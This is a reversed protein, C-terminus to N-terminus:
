RSLLTEIGQAAGETEVRMWLLNATSGTYLDNDGDTNPDTVTFPDADADYLALYVLRRNSAGSADSYSSATTKNTAIKAAALLTGFPEVDIEEMKQLRQYHQLTLDQHIDTSQIGTQLAKLAPVLAIAILASAVMVEIYSFGRDKSKQPLALISILSGNM